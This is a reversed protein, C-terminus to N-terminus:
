RHGRSPEGRSGDAIRKYAFGVVEAYGDRENEFVGLIGEANVIQDSTEKPKQVTHDRGDQQQPRINRSRHARGRRVYRRPRSWSRGEDGTGPVVLQHHVNALHTPM